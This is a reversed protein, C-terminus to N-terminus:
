HWKCYNDLTSFDWSGVWVTSLLVTDGKMVLSREWAGTIVLGCTIWLLLLFCSEVFCFWHPKFMIIKVAASCEYYKHFIVNMRVFLNIYEALHIKVSAGKEFFTLPDHGSQGQFCAPWIQSAYTQNVPASRVCLCFCLCVDFSCMIDAM